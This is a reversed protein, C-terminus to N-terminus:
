EGKSALDRVMALFQMSDVAGQREENLAKKKLTDVRALEEKEKRRELYEDHSKRRKTKNDFYEQNVNVFYEENFATRRFPDGLSVTVKTICDIVSNGTYPIDSLSDRNICFSRFDKWSVKDAFTLGGEISINATLPLVEDGVPIGIAGAVLQLLVGGEFVLYKFYAPKNRYFIFSKSAVVIPEEGGHLYNGFGATRVWNPVKKSETDLVFLDGFLDIGEGKVGNREKNIVLHSGADDVFVSAVATDSEDGFQSLDVDKFSEGLSSYVGEGELMSIFTFGKM